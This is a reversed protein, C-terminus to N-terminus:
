DDVVLRVVLDHERWVAIHDGAANTAWKPGGTELATAPKKTKSM